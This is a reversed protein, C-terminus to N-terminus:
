RDSRYIREEREEDSLERWEKLHAEREADSMPPEEPGIPIKQSPKMMEDHEEKERKLRRWNHALLHFGRTRNWGLSSSVTPHNVALQELSQTM